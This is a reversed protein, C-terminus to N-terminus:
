CALQVVNRLFNPLKDLWSIKTHRLLWKVTLVDTRGCCLDGIHPPVCKLYGKATDRTKPSFNCPSRRKLLSLLLWHFYFTWFISLQRKPQLRFTWTVFEGELVEDKNDTRGRVRFEWCALIKMFKLEQFAFNGNWNGCVLIFESRIPLLLLLLLLL